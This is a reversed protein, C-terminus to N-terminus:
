VLCVILSSLFEQLLGITTTINPLRILKNAFTGTILKISSSMINRNIRKPLKKDTFISVKTGLIFFIIM